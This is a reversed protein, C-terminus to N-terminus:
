LHPVTKHTNQCNLSCECKKASFLVITRSLLVYYHIFVLVWSEPSKPENEAIEAIISKREEKTDFASNGM